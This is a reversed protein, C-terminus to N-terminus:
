TYSPRKHDSMLIAVKFPRKFTDVMDSLMGDRRFLDFFHEAGSRDELPTPTSNVFSPSLSFGPPVQQYDKAIQSM